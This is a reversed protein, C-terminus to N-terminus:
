LKSVNCLRNILVFTQSLDLTCGHCRDFCIIYLSLIISFNMQDKVLICISLLASRNVQCLLWKFRKLWRNTNQICSNIPNM